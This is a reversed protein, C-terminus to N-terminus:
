ANLLGRLEVGEGDDREMGPVRGSVCVGTGDPEAFVLECGEREIGLGVMWCGFGLSVQPM